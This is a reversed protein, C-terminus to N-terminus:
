PVSPDRPEGLDKSLPAWDIREVKHANAFPVPSPQVTAQQQAAEEKLGEDEFAVAPLNVEETVDRRERARHVHQAISISAWLLALLAIISIAFLTHM